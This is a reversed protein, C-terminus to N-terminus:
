KFRLYFYNLLKKKFFFMKFKVRLHQEFEQEPVHHIFNYTCIKLGCPGNEEMCKVLHLELKNRPVKHNKNYPCTHLLRSDIECNPARVREAAPAIDKASYNEM